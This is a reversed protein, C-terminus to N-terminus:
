ANRKNNSSAIIIVDNEEPKLNELMEHRLKADKRLSDQSRDPMLFKNEQFILTTAGLAGIMIAADRQEIGTKIENGLGKVLIAHNYDGLGLSYKGLPMEKPIASELKDYIIEGKKTLWMGANSTEIYGQMKLHKVLTKISGEGLKLETMLVTRSIKGNKRTLQLAMFVHSLEYSLMRGTRRQVHCYAM